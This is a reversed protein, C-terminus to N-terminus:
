EIRRTPICFEFMRGLYDNALSKRVFFFAGAPPAPAKTGLTGMPSPVDDLSTGRAKLCVLNPAGTEVWARKAGMRQPPCFRRRDIAPGNSGDLKKSSTSSASAAIAACISTQVVPYLQGDGGLAIERSQAM